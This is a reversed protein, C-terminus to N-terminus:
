FGILEKALLEVIAEFGVSSHGFPHKDGVDDGDDGGGDLNKDAKEGEEAAPTTKGCRNHRGDAAEEDQTKGQGGCYEIGGERAGEISRQFFVVNVARDAM